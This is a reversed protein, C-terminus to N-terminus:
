PPRPVVRGPHLALAALLARLRAGGLPLATGRSDEARTSGLIRYRVPGNDGPARAPTVANGPPAASSTTQPTSGM